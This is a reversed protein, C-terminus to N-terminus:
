FGPSSFPNAVLRVLIVAKTSGGADGKPRHTM